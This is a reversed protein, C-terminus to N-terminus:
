HPCAGLRLLSRNHYHDGSLFGGGARGEHFCQAGNSYNLATVTALAVLLLAVAVVAVRIVFTGTSM